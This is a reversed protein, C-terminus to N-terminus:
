QISRWYAWCFKTIDIYKQERDIDKVDLACLEGIRMGTALDVAFMNGTNYFPLVSIFQKQEAKTLIRIEGEEVKPPKTEVLPNGRVMKNIVAQQLAGSLINKVKVVTASGLGRGGKDKPEQLKNFMQQIHLGTLDKMKIQGIYHIIDSRIHREYSEYTTDRYKLIGYERLWFPTWEAVTPNESVLLPEGGSVEALASKLKEVVEKQTKKIISKTRKKPDSERTDTYRAEWRGDARKRIMGEGNARHKAVLTV